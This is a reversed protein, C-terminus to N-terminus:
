KSSKESDDEIKSITYGEATLIEKMKELRKERILDAEEKTIINKKFEVDALDIGKNWDDIFINQEITPNGFVKDDVKVNLKVCIESKRTDQYNKTMKEVKNRNITLYITDKM